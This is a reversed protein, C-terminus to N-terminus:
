VGQKHDHLREEMRAYVQDVLKQSECETCLGMYPCMGGAYAFNPLMEREWSKKSLCPRYDIVDLLADPNHKSELYKVAHKYGTVWRSVRASVIAEKSDTWEVRYPYWQNASERTQYQLVYDSIHTIQRFLKPLVYAYYEIQFVNKLIPLNRDPYKVADTAATKLDIVTWYDESPYYEVYDIHGSLGKWNVTLEVYDWEPYPGLMKYEFAVDRENLPLPSVHQSRRLDMFQKLSYPGCKCVAPLFQPLLERKCHTCKWAGFPKVKFPSSKARAARTMVRQWHEHTATGLSTYFSGFWSTTPQEHRGLQNKKKAEIFLIPCFPLASARFEDKEYVPIDHFKGDMAHKLRRVVMPDNVNGGRKDRAKISAATHSFGM